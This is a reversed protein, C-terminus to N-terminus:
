ATEAVVDHDIDANAYVDQVDDLENLEDLLRLLKRAEREEVPVTNKPIWALEADSSEVGAAPLDQQVRHFDHVRTTVVFEDGLSSVDEGGAELAAELVAEETYRHADVFIQGKREFQWAVSGDTGLNGGHSDLAHRLEQVTRNPNDTTTEVVLGVGGPGYAEYTVDRYEVGEIEGTGRKIATEVNELPMEADKAKDIALRLRPNHEPDGGGERAAVTIERVLKGFIKGKRRDEKAKQRKIKSWKNHGAM